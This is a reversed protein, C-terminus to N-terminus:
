SADGGNPRRPAARDLVRHLLREIGGGLVLVALALGATILATIWLGAGCAIGIGAVLWVSAATTLGHVDDVGGGGGRMIMGAGLFGVGTIVGQIIRVVADGPGSTEPGALQISVLTILAAGLSVLGHTRLGAPKHHLDRNIGLIGAILLAAGLRLFIEGPSLGLFTIPM